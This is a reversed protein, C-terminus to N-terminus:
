LRAGDDRGSKNKTMRRFQRMGFYACMPLWLLLIFLLFITEGTSLDGM